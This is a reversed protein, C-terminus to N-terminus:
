GAVIIQFCTDESDTTLMVTENSDAFTFNLSVMVPNYGVIFNAINLVLWMAPEPLSPRLGNDLKLSGFSSGANTNPIYPYESTMAGTLKAERGWTIYIYIGKM